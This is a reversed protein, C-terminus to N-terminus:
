GELESSGKREQAMLPVWLRPKGDVFLEVRYLGPGPLRVGMGIFFNHGKLETVEFTLQETQALINNLSDTVRVMGQYTGHTTGKFHCFIMFSAALPYGPAQITDFIGIVHTRGRDDNFADHAILLAAVRPELDSERETM